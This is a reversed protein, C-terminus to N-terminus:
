RLDLLIWHKFIIDLSIRDVVTIDESSTRHSIDLLSAIFNPDQVLIGLQALKSLPVTQLRCSRSNLGDGSQQRTYSDTREESDNNREERSTSYASLACPGYRRLAEIKVSQGRPCFMLPSFSLEVITITHEQLTCSSMQIPCQLTPQLHPPMTLSPKDDLSDHSSFSPGPRFSPSPDCTVGLQRRKLDVDSIREWALTACSGIESIIMMQVVGLM